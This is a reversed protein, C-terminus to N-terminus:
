TKLRPLAIALLCAPLLVIFLDSWHLAISGNLGHDIFTGCGAILLLFTCQAALVTCWAQRRELPYRFHIWLVCVLCALSLVAWLAVSIAMWLTIPGTYVTNKSIPYAAIAGAWALASAAILGSLARVTKLRCSACAKM